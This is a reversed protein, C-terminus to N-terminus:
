SIICPYTLPREHLGFIYTDQDEDSSLTLSAGQFWNLGELLIIKSAKELRYKNQPADTNNIDQTHTMSERRNM